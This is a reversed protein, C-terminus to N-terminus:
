WNYVSTNIEIENWDAVMVSELDIGKGSSNFRLTIVYRYQPLTTGAYQVQGVTTNLSVHEVTPAVIASPAPNQNIDGLSYTVDLNLDQWGTSPVVFWSCITQPVYQNPNNEDDNYWATEPLVVATAPTTYPYLMHTGDATAVTNGFGQAPTNQGGFPLTYDANGGSTLMSQGGLEMSIVNVHNEQIGTYYARIVINALIHNFDFNVVGASLTTAENQNGRYKGLKTAVLIDNGATEEQWNPIDNITLIKNAESVYAGGNQPAQDPLQPWYAAFQYSAQPDSDWYRKPSYAWTPAAAKSTPHVLTNNFQRYEYNRSTITKYGYVGFGTNNDYSLDILSQKGSVLAKTSVSTAGLVIEDYLEVKHHRVCSVTLAGTLAIWLIVNSLKYFRLKPM